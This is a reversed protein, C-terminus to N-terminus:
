SRGSYNRHREEGFDAMSSCRYAWPIAHLDMLPTIFYRSYLEAHQARKCGSLINQGPGLRSRQWAASDAERCTGAALGFGPANTSSATTLPTIFGLEAIRGNIRNWM